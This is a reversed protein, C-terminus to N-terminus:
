GGSDHGSQALPTGTTFGPLRAYPRNAFREARGHPGDLQDHLVVAAVEDAPLPLALAHRDLPQDFLRERRNVARRHRQVAGSPGIGADVGFALHRARAHGRRDLVPLQHAREVRM